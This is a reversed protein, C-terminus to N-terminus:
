EKVIRADAYGSDVLRSLLRDAEEVSAVPGLRVRYLPTGHTAINSVEVNVLSSFRTRARQANEPVAFAGAQIFIRSEGTSAMVREPQARPPALAAPPRPPLTEAHAAAILWHREPPPQPELDPEAGAAIQPPPEPATHQPPPVLEAVAIRSERPPAQRQLPPAVAAAPAAALMVDGTSGHKAAEAVKISEDKLIRVNVTTTGGREFGLLQAARRSVDIIRNQAYPGRDNVRLQLRRGNQTNTVEVISPLPLTRHAATLQNLDFIEGNATTQQNFAEGYWSAVGTEDYDYDVKPYYWVGNIQYPAGVKYSPHGARYHSSSAVHSGTSGCAALLLAVATLGALQWLRSGQEGASGGANM